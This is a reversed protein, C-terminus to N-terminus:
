SSLLVPIGIFFLIILMYLLALAINNGWDGARPWMPVQELHLAPTSFCLLGSLAVLALTLILLPVCIPVGWGDTDAWFQPSAVNLQCSVITAVLSLVWMWPMIFRIWQLATPRGSLNPSGDRRWIEEQTDGRQLYGMDAGPTQNGMTM